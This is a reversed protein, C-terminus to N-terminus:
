SYHLVLDARLTAYASQCHLRGAKLTVLFLIQRCATEWCAMTKVYQNLNRLYLKSINCHFYVKLIYKKIGKYKELNLEHTDVACFSPMPLSSHKARIQPCMM